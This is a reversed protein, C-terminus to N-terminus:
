KREGKEQEVAIRIIAARLAEWSERAPCQTGLFFRCISSESMGTEQAFRRRRVGLEERTGALLMRFEELAKPCLRRGNYDLERAIVVLDDMRMLREELEPLELLAEATEEQRPEPMQTEPMIPEPPEPTETEPEYPARYQWVRSTDYGLRRRLSRWTRRFYGYFSEIWPQCRAGTDM